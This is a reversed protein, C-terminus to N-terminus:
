EEEEESDPIRVITLGGRLSMVPSTPRQPEKVDLEPISLVTVGGVMEDVVMDADMEKKKENEVQQMKNQYRRLGRRLKRKRRGDGDSTSPIAIGNTIAASESVAPTGIPSWSVRSMSRPRSGKSARSMGTSERDAYVSGVWAERLNLGLTLSMQRAVSNGVSRWRDALSGVLVDEDLFGQARRAEMVTLPRGDVWHLTKSARLDGPSSITATVTSFVDTPKIRSWGKTQELRKRGEEWTERDLLFLELTEPKMVGNGKNWAKEVGMGYPHCPIVNVRPRITATMPSAVRHDPYAVCSEVKGDWIPPLDGAAEEAGVYKFPTPQFSRRIYAENTCLTGLGKARVRPYHSHSLAPAEPLKFGPAAVWLFVRTRSQPAGHSWADGMILQAQYGLGVIACFLQSMVDESRNQSTQVITPVNELIAYKPRYFDIFSAFSAVLSREKAKALTDKNNTLLSFGPCPSGGSILDVDGPCPINDGYKGELALQLLDDVSGLFPHPPNTADPVNLMYTHMAKVSIDNAWLMEVAGGDELGRGLNGAGCFLDLGKLKQVKQRSPHFGQRLSAPFEEEQEYPIFASVGDKVDLRHTIYFLNGTGNRNYPTPIDEGARFFRVACEGVIKDPKVVIDKDTYVLENPAAKSVPDVIHRRLLKRLRFFFMNSAQKFYKVVEYPESFRDTSNVVALVTDGAKFKPREAQHSCRLRTRDLTVFRRHEVIYMQRVFFDAQTSCGEPGVFWDFNHVALVETEHVRNEGAEECTCHDSFFLENVWPYKMMCCPTDVPRYFWTVDFSRFGDKAVHVKQVFGFWRHDEVMGKADIARWRTDTTDGDRPTSITDGVQISSRFDPSPHQKRWQLFEHHNGHQKLLWELFDKRFSELAVERGEEILWGSYDAAHKALDAIWLFAVHFREYEIAPKGLKYYIEKSANLHSRVWIQDGVSPNMTGYNGIPLESFEVKEVWFRVDGCSLIGDFFFRDHGMKTSLLSLTRMELDKNRYVVFQDLDFEIFEQQAPDERRAELAEMLASLAIREGAAPLPPLFGEHQSRPVVLTSKPIEVIINRSSAMKFPAPSESSPVRAEGGVDVDREEDFAASDEVRFEADMKEEGSGEWYQVDDEVEPWVWTCQDHAVLRELKNKLRQVEKEDIGLHRSMKVFYTFIKIVYGYGLHLPTKVGEPVHNLNWGDLIWDVINIMERRNGCCGMALMYRYTTPGAINYRMASRPLLKEQGDKEPIRGMPRALENFATIAHGHAFAILSEVLPQAILKKREEYITGWHKFTAWTLIKRIMVCLSMFIVSDNGQTNVVREYVQLFAILTTELNEGSDATFSSYLNKDKSLFKLITHWPKRDHQAAKTNYSQFRWALEIAESITSPRAEIGAGSEKLKGQQVKKQQAPNKWHATYSKQTNCLMYIWANFIGLPLRSLLLMTEPETWKKWHWLPDAFTHWPGDRIVRLAESKKTAMKILTELCPGTPRIGDSLMMDYLEHIKPPTLRAIAFATLNGNFVPFVEKSDGPRVTSSDGVEAASLKDFMESYVQGNPRLNPIPPREFAMWAERANRTARVRMAWENYWNRSAYKGSWKPPALSRTQITPSQGFTSGGLASLAKDVATDPYGAERSLLGAKASRSLDDVPDRREDTGDYTQRYPPWTKASRDSNKAEAQSKPLGILVSRIARYSNHTLVIAPEFKPAIALLQQQAEWNYEMHSLPQIRAPWSFYQMAKNYLLCRLEHGTMSNSEVENPILKIYDATLRALAPFATPWSDRAHWVLRYIMVAFHWWTMDRSVPQAYHGLDESEPRERRVYNEHVYHVISMYSEPKTLTKDKAVLMHVLFLPKRCNSSFFREVMIDSNRPSFIWLWNIMDDETIGSAVQLAELRADWTKTNDLYRAIPLDEGRQRALLATRRLLLQVAMVPYRLSRNRAVDLALDWHKPGWHQERLLIALVKTPSFPSSGSRSTASEERHLDSGWNAGLSDKNSVLWRERSQEEPTM